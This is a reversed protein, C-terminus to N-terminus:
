EHKGRFACFGPRPGVKPHNRCTDPRKDYVKCRRTTADLNICDGSARRALTFLGFRANFHEIIGAKTLRKAVQKPDGGEEFADVVGLRILDAIRVEAPMTCCSAHCTDCLDKRFRVWTSIDNLDCNHLVLSKMSVLPQLPYPFHSCLAVMEQLFSVCVSDIEYSNSKIQYKIQKDLL